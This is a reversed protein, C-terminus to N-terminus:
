KLMKKLRNINEEDPGKGELGPVELILPINKLREDNVFNQLEEVPITGDGINAHRDRGSAFTWAM